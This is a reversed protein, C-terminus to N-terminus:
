LQSLRVLETLLRERKKTRFYDNADKCDDPYQLKGLKGRWGLQGVLTIADTEEGKDPIVIIRTRFKEFLDPNITKGTTGTAVPFRMDALTLADLIGYVIFMYSNAKVLPWDPIYLMEEQPSYYRMGTTQQISQDARAVYGQFKHDVDYVPVTYWGADWGLIQPEVRNELGRLRLYWGLQEEFKKLTQHCIYIYQETKSKKEVQSINPDDFAPKPPNFSETHKKVSPVAWGAVQRDLSRMDGKAGCATCRYWGDPYILLSPKTDDHFPCLASWYGKYEHVGQLRDLLQQVEAKVGM